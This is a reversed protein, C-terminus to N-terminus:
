EPFLERERELGDIAELDAAELTVDLAALNSELHNRGSAKPIPRIGKAALWALSAQEPTIGHRDAVDVVPEITGVRGGSLPSYAVLPYDHERAHALRDTPQFLPHYEVQNAAPPEGLVDIFRELDALEFNSVAIADVVGADRLEALAPLTRDPDYADKPRHVYLLDVYELGLRELSEATSEAVRDLQDIWLKTAVVLDDRDVSARDIAEGVVAENDYIQATDLHRYGLEIATEIPDPADIGMTGLGREPLKM